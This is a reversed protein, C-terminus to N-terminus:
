GQKVILLQLNSRTKSAKWNKKLINKQSQSTERDSMDKFNGFVSIVILLFIFVINQKKLQKM